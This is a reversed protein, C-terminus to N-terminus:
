VMAAWDVHQTKCLEAENFWYEIERAPEKADLENDSAHVMNRVAAKAASAVLSSVSSFDGRITGPPADKPMTPGCLMRLKKVAHYGEVAAAVVPGSSLFTCNWEHILRGLEVPNDTGFEYKVDLGAESFGKLTKSGMQSLQEDTTAYHGAAFEHTVQRMSLAVVAMGAREVRALIEGVLGRQVADPKILLLTRERQNSM